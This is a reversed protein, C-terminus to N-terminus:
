KDACLTESVIILNQSLPFLQLESRCKIKSLPWFLSVTTVSQGPAVDSTNLTAKHWRCMSCSSAHPMCVASKIQRHQKQQYKSLSDRTEWMHPLAPLLIGFCCVAQKIIFCHPLTGIMEHIEAQRDLHWQQYHAGTQSLRLRLSQRLGQVQIDGWGNTEKSTLIDGRPTLVSLWHSCGFTNRVTFLSTMLM